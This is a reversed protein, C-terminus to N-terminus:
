NRITNELTKLIKGSTKTTVVSAKYDIKQIEPPSEMDELVDPHAYLPISDDEILQDHCSKCLKLLETDGNKEITQINNAMPSGKHGCDQTTKIPNHCKKMTTKELM